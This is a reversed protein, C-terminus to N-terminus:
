EDKVYSIIEKSLKKGDVYPEILRSILHRVYDYQQEDSLNRQKQLVKKLDKQNKVIILEDCELLNTAYDKYFIPVVFNMLSEVYKSTVWNKRIPILITNKTLRLMSQIVDFKKEGFCKPEGIVKREKDSLRGFVPIPLNKILKSLIKTRNYKKGSTNAIAITNFVKSGFVYRSVGDVNFGYCSATQLPVYKVKLVSKKFKCCGEFQAIIDDPVRKLRVDSLVSDLCRPDDSLLIFKKGVNNIVDFLREGKEFQTLGTLVIVADIGANMLDDDSMDKANIMNDIHFLGDNDSIVYFLDDPNNEALLKFLLYTGVNGNTNSRDCEVSNRDFIIKQGVKAIAYKM